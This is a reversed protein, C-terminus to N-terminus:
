IVRCTKPTIKYTNLIVTNDKQSISGDLELKTWERSLTEPTTGLYSALNRKTLSLLVVSDGKENIVASRTLFHIIREKVTETGIWTAQQESNSLRNALLELMKTSVTPHKILLEKFDSHKIMCIMTPELAEAFAEYESQKFLALEGTFEGAILMRILQEKGNEALRYIRIKGFSIIYISNAKEGPRYITEGAVFSKHRVLNFVLTKQEEDLIDFLPINHICDLALNDKKDNM